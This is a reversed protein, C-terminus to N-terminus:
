PATQVPCAEDTIVELDDILLERPPDFAIGPDPRVASGLRVRLRYWREAWEPPLCRKNRRWGGGSRLGNEVGALTRGLYSQVLIGPDAPVNSHFILQPGRNGESRPVWVWTTAEMFVQNSAYSMVLVGRGPPHARTADDLVEVTSQQADAGLVSPWRNPASDFGPDLLDTSDGCRPDSILEVEDVVLESEDAFFGGIPVFSLEVVNGHTWPPLCYTHTRSTGDGALTDLAYTVVGIGFFTGLQAQFSWGAAAKWWFRLGPSPVSSALPVSVRTGMAALNRAGAEKYLRAGSSGSNGVGSELAGSAVGGDPAAQVEFFWGGQDVEAEGNLVSGPTPCEDPDALLIEFRDVEMSGRPNSFCDPLRESASIRFKVPGGYAAEGLCFRETTWEEGTAPLVKVARGYYVDVGNVDNARYTLEAVFPDALAYSPMDVVQSATGANCVASVDFSALGPGLGSALPLITVGNSVDSWVGPDTFDPDEPAGNWVCPDGEYGAVCQCETVDRSVGCEEHAGCAKNCEDFRVVCSGAQPELGDGCDSASGCGAGVALLVVGLAQVWPPRRPCPCAFPIM